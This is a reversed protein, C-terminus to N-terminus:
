RPPYHQWSQWDIGSPSGTQLQQQWQRAQQQLAGRSRGALTEDAPLQPEVSQALRFRLAPWRRAIDRTLAASREANATYIMLSVQRVGLEPLACPVCPAGSAAAFWRPHSSLEVPWPSSRVALALTDLWDRLRQEPVPWGLQEVELDLHLGAFPLDALRQLLDALQGRQDPRLWGPEGLLLLPEMGAARSERLLAQLEGRLEALRGVQAASLGLYLRRMGAERLARLEAARRRADLLARSDWIYVGQSWDGVPDASALWREDSGGLLAVGADDSFVRLAAEGLWLAHWAAVQQLAAEHVDLEAEQLRAVGAEGELAGRLGRETLRRRAVELQERQRRLDELALRHSDLATALSRRLVHREDELAAEAAQYRAEGERRRADGYGLVDFPASVDVSAVWDGGSQDKGSRRDYDRSLSVNSELLAYWPTERQWGAEALRSEREAVRPHRELSHLWVPLPQPRSALPEAQATTAPPIDRGALEALWLVAQAHSADVAACRRQLGQWRSRLADAESPLMWGERRRAQLVQLAKAEVQALPQCVRQEEQTRWWDAYASRVELRQEAQLLALRLRQREQEHLGSQVLALRRQLNGLLPHRVGLALNRGYYDDRPGAGLEQYSGTTASSFLQWGAEARRQETVAEQAALEAAARRQAPAAPLGALLSDLALPAAQLSGALCLAALALSSRSM